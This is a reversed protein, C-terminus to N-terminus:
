RMMENIVAEWELPPRPRKPDTVATSPEVKAREREAAVREREAAARERMRADAEAARCRACTKSAYINKRVFRHSCGPTSCIVFRTGDRRM